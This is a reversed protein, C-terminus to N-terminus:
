VDKGEVIARGKAYLEGTDRRLQDEASVGCLHPYALKGIAEWILHRCEHLAQLIVPNEAKSIEREISNSVLIEADHLTDIIRTIQNM